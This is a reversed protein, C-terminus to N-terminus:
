IVSEDNLPYTLTFRWIGNKLDEKTMKPRDKDELLPINLYVPGMHRSHNVKEIREYKEDTIDNSVKKEGKITIYDRGRQKSWKAEFACDLLEVDVTVILGDKTELMCKSYGPIYTESPQLEGIDNVKMRGIKIPTKGGNIIVKKEEDYKLQLDHQQIMTPLNRRCFELFAKPFDIHSKYEVHLLMKDKLFQIAPTNFYEGAPTGKAALVIHIIGQSDRYLSQNYRPGDKQYPNSNFMPMEQVNFCSFIDIQTQAKVADITALTKYNHVVYLKKSRSKNKMESNTSNIVKEYHSINRKILKSESESLKGVVILIIDMSEIVFKEKLDDIIKRDNHLSQYTREHHKFEEEVTREESELEIPSGDSNSASNKTSIDDIYLEEKPNEKLKELLKERYLQVAEESSPTDVFGYYYDGDKEPLSVLIANTKKSYGSDFHAGLENLLFSKGTDSGGLVSTLVIGRDCHSKMKEVDKCTIRWGDGNLEHLFNMELAWDAPKGQVEKELTSMQGKELTAITQCAQEHANALQEHKQQITILEVKLSENESTTKSLTEEAASKKQEAISAEEESKKCKDEFIKHANALQDMEQQLATMKQTLSENEKRIAEVLEKQQNAVAIEETLRKNEEELLAQANTLQESKQQFETIKLKLNENENRTAVQMEEASTKQQKVLSIEETRKQYDDELNNLLGLIKERIQQEIALSQENSFISRIEELSPNKNTTEM